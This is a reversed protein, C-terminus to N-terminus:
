GRLTWRIIRLPEPEEKKELLVKFGSIYGCQPCRIAFEIKQIAEVTETQSDDWGKDYGKDYGQQYASDATKEPPVVPPTPTPPSTPELLGKGRAKKLTRALLDGTGQDILHFGRKEKPTGEKSHHLQHGVIENFGELTLPTTFDRDKVQCEWIPNVQKTTEAKEAM